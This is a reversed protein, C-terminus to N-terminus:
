LLLCHAAMKGQCQQKQPETTSITSNRLSKSNSVRSGTPIFPPFLHQLVSLIETNNQACVSIFFYYGHSSIVILPTSVDIIRRPEFHRTRTYIIPLSYHPKMTTPQSHVASFFFSDVVSLTNYSPSLSPSSWSLSLSPQSVVVVAAIVFVFIRCGQM